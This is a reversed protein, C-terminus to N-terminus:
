YVVTKTKEAMYKKICERVVSAMTKDDAIAAQKFQKHSKEDMEVLLQTM